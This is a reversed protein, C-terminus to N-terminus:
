ISYLGWYAFLGILLLYTVNNITFIWKASQGWTSHIFLRVNVTILPIILLLILFPVYSFANMVPSGSVTYPAPFYFINIESGLLFMYYAM